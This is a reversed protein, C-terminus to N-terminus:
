LELCLNIDKYRIEEFEVRSLNLFMRFSTVLASIKQLEVFGLQNGQTKQSFGGSQKAVVESVGL